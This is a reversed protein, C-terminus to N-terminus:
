QIFILTFQLFFCEFGTPKQRQCGSKGEFDTSHEQYFFHTGPKVALKLQNCLKKVLFNM